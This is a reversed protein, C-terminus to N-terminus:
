PATWRGASLSTLNGEDAQFIARISVTTAVGGGATIPNPDLGVDYMWTAGILEDNDVITLTLRTSSLEEPAFPPPNGASRGKCFAEFTLTEDDDDVEDDIVWVTFTQTWDFRAIIHKTDTPVFYDTIDSDQPDDWTLTVKGVGAAAALGTPKDPKEQIALSFAVM